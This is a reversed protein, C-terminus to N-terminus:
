RSYWSSWIVSGAPPLVESARGVAGPLAGSWENASPQFLPHLWKFRWAAAEEKSELAAFLM